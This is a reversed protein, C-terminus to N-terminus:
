SGESPPRKQLGLERRTREVLRDSKKLHCSMCLYDTNRSPFKTREEGVSNRNTIAIGCERCIRSSRAVAAVTLPRNPPRM